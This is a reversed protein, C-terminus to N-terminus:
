QDSDVTDDVHNSYVPRAGHSNSNGKGHLRIDVKRTCGPFAVHPSTSIARTPRNPNGLWLHTNVSLFPSSLLCDKNSQHRRVTFKLRGSLARFSPDVLGLLSYLRTNGSHKVAQNVSRTSQNEPTNTVEFPTKTRKPHGQGSLAGSRNVPRPTLTLGPLCLCFDTM